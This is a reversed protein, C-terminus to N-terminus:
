PVFGILSTRIAGGFEDRLDLRPVHDERLIGSGALNSRAPDGIGPYGVIVQDPEFDVSIYDANSLIV